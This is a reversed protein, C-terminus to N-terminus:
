WRISARRTARTFQPKICLGSEAAVVECRPRDHGARLLAPRGDVGEITAAAFADLPGALDLAQMAPYVLFGVRKSNM